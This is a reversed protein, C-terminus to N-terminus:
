KAIKPCFCKVYLEPKIIPPVAPNIRCPINWGTIGPIEKM